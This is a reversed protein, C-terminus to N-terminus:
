LVEKLHIEKKKRDLGSMSNVCPRYMESREFDSKEDFFFDYKPASSWFLHKTLPKGPPQMKLM